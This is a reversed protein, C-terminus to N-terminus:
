NGPRVGVVGTMILVLLGFGITLRRAIGSHGALRRLWRPLPPTKM